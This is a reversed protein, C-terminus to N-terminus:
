SVLFATNDRTAAQPLDCSSLNIFSDTSGLVPDSVPNRKGPEQFTRPSLDQFNSILHPIRSISIMSRSNEHAVRSATTIQLSCTRSQTSNCYHSHCDELPCDRNGLGNYSTCHQIDKTNCHASQIASLPPHATILLWRQLLQWVTLGICCGFLEERCSPTSHRSIIVKFGQFKTKFNRHSGTTPSDRCTTAM